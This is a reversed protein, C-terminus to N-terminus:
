PKSAQLTSANQWAATRAQQQQLFAQKREETATRIQEPTRVNLQSALASLRSNTTSDANNLKSQAIELITNVDIEAGVRQYIQWGHQKVSAALQAKDDAEAAYLLEQLEITENNLRQTDQLDQNIGSTLENPTSETLASSQQEEEWVPPLEPDTPTEPELRRVSNEADIDRKLTELTSEHELPLTLWTMPEASNLTDCFLEQLRIPAVGLYDAADELTREIPTDLAQEITEIEQATTAKKTRPM